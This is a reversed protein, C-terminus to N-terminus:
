RWLSLPPDRVVARLVDGRSVFGTLRGHENVIPVGDVDREVMVQAIRRIDTLPDAAVVPSSMVDAVRRALADRVQDHDLNLATLLDREGVIGVLAGAADLVPAQHIRERALLQWARVVEDDSRVTIVSRTMLQEAHLLPGREEDIHLMQRYAAAATAQTTTSTTPSTARSANANAAIEGFENGATGIAEVPRRRTVPRIAPLEELRGRFVPGNVGFIGFM